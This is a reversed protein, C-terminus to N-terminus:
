GFYRTSFFPLYTKFKKSNTFWRYISNIGSLKRPGEIIRFKSSVKYNKLSNKFFIGVRECKKKRLCKEVQQKLNQRDHHITQGIDTLEVLHSMTQIYLVRSVQVWEPSWTGGAAERGAAESGCWASQSRTCLWRRPRRASCWRGRGRWGSWPSPWKMTFLLNHVTQLDCHCM